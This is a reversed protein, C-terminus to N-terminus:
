EIHLYYTKSDDGLIMRLNNYLKIFATESYTVMMQGNSQNAYHLGVLECGNSEDPYNGIHFYLYQRGAVEIQIHYDFFQFKRIYRKTLPTITYNLSLKYVGPAINNEPDSITYIDSGTFKDFKCLRYKDTSKEIHLYLHVELEDTTTAIYKLDSVTKLDVKKIAM